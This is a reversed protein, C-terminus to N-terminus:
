IRGRYRVQYGLKTNTIKKKWQVECDWGEAGECGAYIFLM